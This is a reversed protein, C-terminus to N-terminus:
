SKNRISHTSIHSHNSIIIEEALDDYSKRLALLRLQVQLEVANGRVAKM